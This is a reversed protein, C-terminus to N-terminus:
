SYEDPSALERRPEVSVVRNRAPSVGQTSEFWYSLNNSAWSDRLNEVMTRTDDTSNNDVVNVEYQTDGSDQNLLSEIAGRLVDCRNYTGIIVSVDPESM